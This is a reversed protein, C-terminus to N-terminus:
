EKKAFLYKINRLKDSNDKDFFNDKDVFRLGLESFKPNYLSTNAVFPILFYKEHELVPQCSFLREIREKFFPFKKVAALFQNFNAPIFSLEKMTSNIEEFSYSGDSAIIKLKETLNEQHEMPNWCLTFEGPPCRNSFSKNYESATANIILAYHPSVRNCGIDDIQNSFPTKYDVLTEFDFDQYKFFDLEKKVSYCINM